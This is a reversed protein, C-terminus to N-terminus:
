GDSNMQSFSHVEKPPLENQKWAAGVGPKLEPDVTHSARQM